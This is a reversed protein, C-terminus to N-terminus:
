RGSAQPSTCRPRASAAPISRVALSWGSTVKAESKMILPGLPAWSRTEEMCLRIYLWHQRSGVRRIAPGGRQRERLCCSYM